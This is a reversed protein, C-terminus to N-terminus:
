KTKNEIEKRYKRSNRRRTKTGQVGQHDVEQRGRYSWAAHLPPRHLRAVLLGVMSKKMELVAQTEGAPAHVAAVTSGDFDFLLPLSMDVLEHLPQAGLGPVGDMVAYQEFRLVTLSWQPEATVRGAIPAIELRARTVVTASGHLRATSDYEYVGQPQLLVAPGPAAAAPAAALLVLVPLVLSRHLAM